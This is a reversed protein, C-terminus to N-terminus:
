PMSYVTNREKRKGDELITVLHKLFDSSSDDKTCQGVSLTITVGTPLGQMRKTRESVNDRIREALELAERKNTNPLILLFRDGSYRTLIDVTRITKKIIKVLLTLIQDGGKYTLTDNIKRFEDVDLLIATLAHKYRKARLMEEKLKELHYGPTYVREIWEESQKTSSPPQEVHHASIKLFLEKPNQQDFYDIAATQIGVTRGLKQEIDKKNELIHRWQSIADKNSFEKGTLRLLLTSFPNQQTSDEDLFMRKITNFSKPDKKGLPGEILEKFGDFPLENMM